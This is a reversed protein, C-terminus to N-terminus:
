KIILFRCKIWVNSNKVSPVVRPWCRISGNDGFRVEPDM